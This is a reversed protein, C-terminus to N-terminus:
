VAARSLAACTAVVALNRVWDSIHGWRAEAVSANALWEAVAERITGDTLPNLGSVARPLLIVLSIVARM